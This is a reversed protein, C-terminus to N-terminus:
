ESKEDSVEALKVYRYRVENGRTTWSTTGDAWVYPINDIPNSLHRNHWNVGDDSVLVPTDIPVSSWDVEPEVYESVLWAATTIGCLAGKNYRVSFLCDECNLNRCYTVENTNKDVAIHTNENFIIDIEAKNKEYNIMVMVELRYGTRM